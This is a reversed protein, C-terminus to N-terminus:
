VLSFQICIDLIMGARIAWLLFPKMLEMASSDTSELFLSTKAPLVRNASHVSLFTRPLFVQMKSQVVLDNLQEGLLVVTAKKNYLGLTSLLRLGIERLWALM